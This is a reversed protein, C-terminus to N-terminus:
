RDLPRPPEAPRDVTLPRALPTIAYGSCTASATPEATTARASTPWPRPTACSGGGTAASATRHGGALGLQTAVQDSDRSRRLDTTSLQQVRGM